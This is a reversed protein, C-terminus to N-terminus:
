PEQEDQRCSRRQYTGADEERRDESAHREIKGRRQVALSGIAGDEERQAQRANRQGPQDTRREAGASRRQLRQQLIWQGIGEDEADGSARRHSTRHGKSRPAPRGVAAPQGHKEEAEHASAAAASTRESALRPPRTKRRRRRARRRPTSSPPAAPGPARGTPPRVLVRDASGEDRRGPNGWALAASAAAQM